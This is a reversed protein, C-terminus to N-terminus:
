FDLFLFCCKVYANPFDCEPFPTNFFVAVYKPVFNSVFSRLTLPTCAFPLFSFFHFFLCFIRLLYFFNHLIFIKIKPKSSTLFSNYPYLPFLLSTIFRSIRTPFLLLTIVYYSHPFPSFYALTLLTKYTQFSVTKYLVFFFVRTPVFILTSAYKSGSVLFIM